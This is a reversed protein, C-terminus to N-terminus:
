EFLFARLTVTLIAGSVVVTLNDTRSVEAIRQPVFLHIVLPDNIGDFMTAALHGRLAFFQSLFLDSREHQM